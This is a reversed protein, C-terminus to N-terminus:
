IKKNNSLVITRQLRQIIRVFEFWKSIRLSRKKRSEFHACIYMRPFFFVLFKQLGEYLAISNEPINDHTFIFATICFIYCLAFSFLLFLLLLLNFDKWFLNNHKWKTIWNQIKKCAYKWSCYFIYLFFISAGYM